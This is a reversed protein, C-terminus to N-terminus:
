RLINSTDMVASRIHECLRSAIAQQLEPNDEITHLLGNWAAKANTHLQQKLKDDNAEMNIFYGEFISVLIKATTSDQVVRKVSNENALISTIIAMVALLSTQAGSAELDTSSLGSSIIQLGEFVSTALETM